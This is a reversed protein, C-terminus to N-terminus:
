RRRDVMWSRVGTAWRQSAAAGWVLLTAGVFTIVTALQFAGAGNVFMSALLLVTGVWVGHEAVVGRRGAPDGAPAPAPSPPPEPVPDPAPESATAGEYREVIEEFRERERASLLSEPEDPRSRDGQSHM